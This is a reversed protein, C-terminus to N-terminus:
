WFCSFRHWTRLQGGPLPAHTAAHWPRIYVRGVDDLQASCVWSFRGVFKSYVALDCRDAELVSDLTQGWGDVKGIEVRLKAVEFTMMLKCKM